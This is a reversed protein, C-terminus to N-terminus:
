STADDAEGLVKTIRDRMKMLQAKAIAVDSHHVGFLDECNSTHIQELKDIMGRVMVLNEVTKAKDAKSTM